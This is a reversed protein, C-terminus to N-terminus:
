IYIPSPEDIWIEAKEIAGSGLDLDKPKSWGIDLYFQRVCKMLVIPSVTRIIDLFDLVKANQPVLSLLSAEKYLAFNIALYDLDM